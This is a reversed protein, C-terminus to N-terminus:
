QTARKLEEEGLARNWWRFGYILFSSFANAGAFQGVGVGQDGHPETLTAAAAYSEESGDAVTRVGGNTTDFAVAVKSRKGIGHTNQLIYLYGAPNYAPTTATGSTRFVAGTGTEGFLRYNGALNAGIEQYDLLYTFPGQPNRAYTLSENARSPKRTM